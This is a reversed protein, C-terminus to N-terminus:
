VYGGCYDCKYSNVPAGCHPCVKTQSKTGTEIYDASIRYDDMIMTWEDDGMYMFTGDLSIYIDGKNPNEPKVSIYVTPSPLKSMVYDYIASM